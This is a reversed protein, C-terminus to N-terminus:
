AEGMQKRLIDVYDDYQAKFMNAAIPEGLNFKRAFDRVVFNPRGTREHNSIHPMDIILKNTQKYALLVYRHLGTDKSPASGIYEAIIEGKSIDSGPINAVLWHLMEQLKPDQSSPSDPDIMVITYFASDDVLWSITPPDKVITPTLEEGFQLNKEKDNGYKFIVSLLENPAKSVIDPVIASVTLGAPIDEALTYTYLLLGLNCLNLANALNYICSM